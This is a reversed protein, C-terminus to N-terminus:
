RLWAVALIGLTSWFVATALTISAWVAARALSYRKLVTATESM